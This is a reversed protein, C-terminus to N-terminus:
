MVNEAKNLFLDQIEKKMSSLTTDLTNTDSSLLYRCALNFINYYNLGVQKPENDLIICKYNDNEINISYTPSGETIFDRLFNKAYYQNPKKYNLFDIFKKEDDLVQFPINDEKLTVIINNVQLLDIIALANDNNLYILKSFDIIFGYNLPTIKKGKLEFTFDYKNFYNELLNSIRYGLDLLRNNFDKNNPHEIYQPLLFKLAKLYKNLYNELM